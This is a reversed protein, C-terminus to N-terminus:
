PSRRMAEILRAVAVILNALANILLVYDSCTM